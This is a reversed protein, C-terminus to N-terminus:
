PKKNPHPNPAAQNINVCVTRVGRKGVIVVQYNTLNIVTLGRKESLKPVM